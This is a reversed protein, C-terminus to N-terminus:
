NDINPLLHKYRSHLYELGEEDNQIELELQKQLFQHKGRVEQIVQNWEKVWVEVNDSNYILGFERDSQKMERQAHSNLKIGLLIFKWKTKQKDFHPNDDIAFAYSKIQSLEKEGIVCSPRKLEIVLNEYHDPEGHVFKRYLGIDPIDDLGEIKKFDIDAAVEKRDLINLHEKLVNKLSIDDFGYQYQDGFIWLENVLIKHLQSREKLIKHYDKSYLIQELGNLFKLRDSILKTTNIISTLTTKELLSALEDQQEIPLNLVEKLITKISTPNRELAEKLLRYAVKKSDEHMRNFNPLYENIKYACIDFVQREAKELENKPNGEYPYIKSDKIKEIEYSAENALKERSISTLIQNIENMLLIFDEELQYTIIRKNDWFDDFISSKVYASHSFNHLTIKTKENIYANSELGNFFLNKYKGRKWVIFDMHAELIEGTDKEFNILYSTKYDIFDEPSIGFGNVSIKIGPNAFLYPCFVERINEIFSNLDAFTDVKEVYLDEIIVKVGTYNNLSIEEPSIFISKLSSRRAELNFEYFEETNKMYTSQWKVCEGLVFGSFRGQGEKGQYLRGQPSYIKKVKHSDGLEGFDTDVSHYAIGHGNDWITIREIGELENHTFSVKVETADADLANWILECLAKLPSVKLLKNMHNNTVKVELSTKSM